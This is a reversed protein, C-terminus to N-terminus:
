GGIRNSLINNNMILGVSFDSIPNDPLTPTAANTNEVVQPMAGGGGSNIIIPVAGSSDMGLKMDNAKRFLNNTDYGSMYKVGPVSGGKQFNYQPIFSSHKASANSLSAPREWYKAWWMSADYASMGATESQYRPGVDERLAYDIQGKWNGSNVLGAVTPTQRAGKWQFLGGPGGDDGSRVTPNFTSERHINAVIGKAQASTYGKSVIYDHMMKAKERVSGTLPPSSSSMGGGGGGSGGGFLSDFMGPKGFGKAFHSLGEQINLGFAELIFTNLGSTLQQLITQGTGGGAGGLENKKETTENKSGAGGAAFDFHGDHSTYQPPLLTWGYM